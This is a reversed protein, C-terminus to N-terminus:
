HWPSSVEPIRKAADFFQATLHDNLAGGWFEAQSAEVKATLTDGKPYQVHILMCYLGSGDLNTMNCDFLGDRESMLPANRYWMTILSLTDDSFQYCFIVYPFALQFVQQTELRDKFQPLSQGYSHHLGSKLVQRKLDDYVESSTEWRITRSSVPPIEVVFVTTTGQSRVLKGYKPLMIPEGITPILARASVPKHELARTMASSGNSGPLIIRREYTAIGTEDIRISRKFEPM